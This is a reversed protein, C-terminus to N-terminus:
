LSLNRGHNRCLLLLFKKRNYFIIIKVGAAKTWLTKYKRVNKKKKKKEKAGGDGNGGNDGDGNCGDGNDM